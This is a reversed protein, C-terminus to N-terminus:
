AAALLDALRADRLSPLVRDAEGVVAPDGLGVVRMGAAHAARVGAEADEVVLCESPELGLQRAAFLFLDPAPKSARVASGDCVADILPTIGLKSLVTLANRSASAVATRLGAARAEELISLVGPLVDAPSLTAILDTYYQNKREMLEQAEAETVPRGNLVLDLSARRSLGRIDDRLSPRLPLGLDSALRSWAQYHLESTDTLVGDLDFIIGRISKQETV